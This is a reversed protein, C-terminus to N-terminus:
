LLQYEEVTSADEEHDACQGPVVAFTRIGFPNEENWVDEPTRCPPM